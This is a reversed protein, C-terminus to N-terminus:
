FVLAAERAKRECEAVVEDLDPGPMGTPQVKILRMDEFGMFGFAHEIYARQFDTKTGDSEQPFRMEYPSGSALIMQLPKGEVLGRYAPAGDVLEVVFTVRPQTVLDIWHKLRYPISFNWMPSSLLIKDASKLRDSERIVGAWEGEPGLADAGTMLSMFNQDKQSAGQGSFHPLDVDFLSLTEIEDQPNNARYADLFVKAVRSSYSNDGRPSAEIYLVKAM